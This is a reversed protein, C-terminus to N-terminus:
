TDTIFVQVANHLRLVRSKGASAPNKVAVYAATGFLKYLEVQPCGVMDLGEPYYSPGGGAVVVNSADFGFSYADEGSGYHIEIYRAM